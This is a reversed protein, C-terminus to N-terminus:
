LKGVFKIKVLAELGPLSDMALEPGLVLPLWNKM